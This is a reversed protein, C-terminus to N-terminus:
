DTSLNNTLRPRGRRLLKIKIGHKRAEALKKGREHWWEKRKKQITKKNTQYYQQQSKKTKDLNEERYKKSRKIFKKRAKPNEKIENHYYEKAKLKNKNKNKERTKKERKQRADDKCKDSCYRLNFRGFEPEFFGGCYNCKRKKM